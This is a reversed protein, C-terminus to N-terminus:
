EIALRADAEPTVSLEQPVEGLTGVVLLDRARGELEASVTGADRGGELCRSITLLVRAADARVIFPMPLGAAVAATTGAKMFKRRTVHM